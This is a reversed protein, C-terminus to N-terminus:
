AALYEGYFDFIKQWGDNAAEPRYAPRNVAFFAHGANEYTHFEYTKGQAKLEDELEAVADPAPHADDAGFLGLLPCNLDKILAKILGVKLPMGEPVAETVFAGYCDVAADLPTSCAGDWSLTGRNGWVNVELLPRGAGRLSVAVLATAGAEFRTLVSLQGSEVGGFATLQDSQSGLWGACAELIRALQREIRGHDATLAAVVRASVPTGIQGTQLAEAIAQGAVDFENM